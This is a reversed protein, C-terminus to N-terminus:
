KSRYNYHKVEILDLMKKIDKERLHDLPFTDLRNIREIHLVEEKIYYASLFKVDVELKKGKIALKFQHGGMWDFANKRTSQFIRYSIASLYLLWIIDRLWENDEPVLYMIVLVGIIIAITVVPYSWSPYDKFLDNFFYLKKKSKIM